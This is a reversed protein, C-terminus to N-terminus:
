KAGLVGLLWEYEKVLSDVLTKGCTKERMAAPIV